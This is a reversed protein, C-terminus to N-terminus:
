RRVLSWVGAISQLLNSVGLSSTVSTLTQERAPEMEPRVELKAYWKAQAAADKLRPILQVALSRCGNRICAAVFPEYGVPSTRYQAFARLEDFNGSDALANIKAHWYRKDPV